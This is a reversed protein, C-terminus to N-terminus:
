TKPWFIMGIRMHPGIKFTRFKSADRWAYVRTVPVRKCFVQCIRKYIKKARLYVKVDTINRGRTKIPSSTFIPIAIRGPAALNCGFKGRSNILQRPHLKWWSPRPSTRYNEALKQVTMSEVASLRDARMLDLVRRLESGEM